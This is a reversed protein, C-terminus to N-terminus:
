RPKGCTRKVEEKCSGIDSNHRKDDIAGVFRVLNMFDKLISAVSIDFRGKAFYFLLEEFRSLETRSFALNLIVKKNVCVPICCIEYKARFLSPCFAARALHDM